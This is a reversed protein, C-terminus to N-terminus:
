ATGKNRYEEWVWKLNAALSSVDSFLTASNVGLRHLQRRLDTRAAGDIKIRDLRRGEVATVLELPSCVTFVSQQSAIRDDVVSPIFRAVGDEKSWELPSKKPPAALDIMDDHGRELEGSPLVYVYVDGSSEAAVSTVAFYAAALPNKTWDLLRTPLGHHQAVALWEWDNIPPRSLHGRAQRKFSNFLTEEYKLESWLHRASDPIGYDYWSSCCDETSPSGRGERVSICHCFSRTVASLMKWTRDVGRFVVTQDRYLQLRELYDRISKIREITMSISGGVNGGKECGDATM